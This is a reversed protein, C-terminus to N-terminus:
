LTTINPCEKGPSPTCNNNFYFFDMDTKDEEFSPGNVTGPICKGVGAAEGGQINNPDTGEAIKSGANYVGFVCCNSTACNDKSGLSSCIGGRQTAAAFCPRVGKDDGANSDFTEYVIVKETTLNGTKKQFDPTTLLIGIIIIIMLVLFVDIFNKRLFSGSLAEAIDELSLKFISTEMLGRHALVSIIVFLLLGMTIMLTKTKDEM